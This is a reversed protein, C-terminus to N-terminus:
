KNNNPQEAFLSKTFDLQELYNQYEVKSMEDRPELDYHDCFKEYSAAKNM